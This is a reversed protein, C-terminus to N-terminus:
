KRRMKMLILPLFSEVMEMFRKIQQNDEFIHWHKINDLISPRYMIEIEFKLHTTDPPKFTANVM